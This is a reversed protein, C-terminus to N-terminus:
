ANRRTFSAIHRKHTALKACVKGRHCNLTKKKDLGFRYDRYCATLKCATVTKTQKEDWGFRSSVYCAPVMCASVTKTKKQNRVLDYAEMNREM